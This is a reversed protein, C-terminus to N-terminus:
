LYLHLTETWLASIPPGPSEPRLRAPVGPIESEGVCLIRTGIFSMKRKDETKRERWM